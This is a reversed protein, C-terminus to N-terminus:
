RSIGLSCCGNWSAADSGSGVVVTVGFGYLADSMGDSCIRRELAATFRGATGSGVLVFPGTAGFGHFFSGVRFWREEPGPMGMVSLGAADNQSLRLSWFPETGFCTLNRQDPLASGPQRALFRMSVWGSQGPSANVRGWSGSREIVEVDRANHALSGVIASSGSPNQRVNLVDDSRVGDVTHLAPLDQALAPVLSLAFAVGAWFAVPVAQAMARFVRRIPGQERAM